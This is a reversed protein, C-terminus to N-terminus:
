PYLLKTDLPNKLNITFIHIPEEKDIVGNANQDFKAYVQMADFSKNYESKYVSYNNPILLSKTSNLDNVLYLRRLDKKNILTDKNTDEDYASVMFYNRKVPKGAISDKDTCPYYLSKILVPRSFFLSKTNTSRNYYSINIMNYGYMLGMGPIFNIEKTYDEYYQYEKHYITHNTVNKKHISVLVIDNLGTQIIDKPSTQLTRLNANHAISRITDESHMNDTVASIQEKYDKKQDEGCSMLGLLFLFVFIIRM